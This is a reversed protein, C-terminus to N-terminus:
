QRVRIGSLDARRLALDSQGVRLEVPDGLPAFRVVEVRAGRVFGLELLRRRLPHARDLSVIHAAEGPRLQDLPREEMGSYM